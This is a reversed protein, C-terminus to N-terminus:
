PNQNYFEYLSENVKVWGIKGIHVRDEFFYKTYEQDSFDAVQADFEAALAKVKAYYGQRAESPFETFDYYYGNVPLLILLPEIELERCVTLFCRLDDYEPSNNYGTKADANMGKKEPLYPLLIEYCDDDIFFENQNEKDGDQEAQLLLTEFDPATNRSPVGDGRSIGALTMHAAMQFSDREKLFATRLAEKKQELFTGEQKWLVKEHLSVEKLTNEDIDRLLTHTRQSIYAKQTDSLQENSLMATYLLESFRSTYAQDVVGPRRFWQPSLILAAKKVKMSPAIASLTVSHSLCQYYGAGILMPNFQTDAFVHQPHYQTDRGHQFESSGFVPITGENMNLTLGSLSTGKEELAWTSFAPNNVATRTGAYYHCGIVTVLFLCLATLFAQIKKM